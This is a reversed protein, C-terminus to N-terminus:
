KMGWLPRETPLFIGDIIWRSFRRWSGRCIVNRAKEKWYQPLNGDLRYLDNLKSLAFGTYAFISINEINSRIKESQDLLGKKSWRYLNGDETLAFDTDYFMAVQKVKKRAPEPVSRSGDNYEGGWGIVDGNQNIALRRNFYKRMTKMPNAEDPAGGDTIAQFNGKADIYGCTSGSVVLKAAGQGM